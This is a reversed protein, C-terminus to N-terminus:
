NPGFCEDLMREQIDIVHFKGPLNHFECFSNTTIIQDIGNDFLTTLGKSFIGHTVYLAVHEAGKSRLVKALEIFTRGGDCIDDIIICEKGPVNDIEVGTIEGTKPDRIKHGTVVPNSLDYRSFLDRGKSIAGQDPVVVTTDEPMTSLAQKAFVHQDVEILDESGVWNKSHLDAVIIYTFLGGAILSDYVWGAYTGEGPYCMRDQRAYPFYPVILDVWMRDTNEKVAGYLLNIAVLGEADRLNAYIAVKSIEKTGKFYALTEESLRIHVEGGSFVWQEFPLERRDANFLKITSKM